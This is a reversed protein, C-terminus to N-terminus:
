ARAGAHHPHHCYLQTGDSDVLLWCHFDGARDSDRLFQHVTTSYPTYFTWGTDVGGFAAHGGPHVSAGLTFIYWSLLNLRPFALDRAGLMMPVFFNGLM